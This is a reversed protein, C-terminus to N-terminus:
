NLAELTAYQLTMTNSASSTGWTAKLDLTFPNTTDLTGLSTSPINLGTTLLTTQGYDFRGLTRFSGATASYATVIITADVFWNATGTIAVLALAGTTSLESVTGATNTMTLRILLTPTGTTTMIGGAKLRYMAGAGAVNPLNWDNTLGTAPFTLTGFSSTNGTFLSTETTSTGYATGAGYQIYQSGSILFPTGAKSKFILGETSSPYIPNTSPVAVAM